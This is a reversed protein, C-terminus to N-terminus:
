KKINEYFKDFDSSLNEITKAESFYKSDVGLFEIFGVKTEVDYEGLASDLYLYGVQAFIKYEDKNFDKIFFQIGVKGNDEYLNFSIDEIKIARDAFRIESHLPKRRPRFKTIIWKELKPSSNYLNEVAPFAKKIWGASIVFERQNNKLIPWFEFTLDPHVKSLEHILIDFIEEQDKEFNFIM